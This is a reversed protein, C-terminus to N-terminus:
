PRAGSRKFSNFIDPSTIIATLLHSISPAPQQLRAVRALENYLDPKISAASQTNLRMYHQMMSKVACPLFRSSQAIIRAAESLNAANQGLIRSSESEASAPTRLHSTALGNTSFGDTAAPNQLGNANAVYVGNLNFKVFFQAHLGFQSHCSYCNNGNGFTIAGNQTAFQDILQNVQLKPEDIEALPYTTCLFKDMMRGARSINYAGKATSLFAKTTLVGATFPATTDCAMNNGAANVCTNATILDTYPRNRRAIDRGLNGPLNYDTTESVGNTRMLNEVFIQSSNIFEPELFWRAIITGFAASGQSRVQTVEAATLPRHVIQTSFLSLYSVAQDADAVQAYLYSPTLFLLLILKLKKM